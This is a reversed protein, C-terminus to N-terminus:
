AHSKPRWHLFFLQWDSPNHLLEIVFSQAGAAAELEVATTSDAQVHFAMWALTTWNDDNEGPDTSVYVVFAVGCAGDKLSGDCYVRIFQFPPLRSSCWSASGCM